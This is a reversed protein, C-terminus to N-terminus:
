VIYTKPVEISCEEENKGRYALIKDYLFIHHELDKKTLRLIVELSAQSLSKTSTRRRIDQDVTQHMSQHSPRYQINNVASESKSFRRSLSQNSSSHQIDQEGEVKKPILYTMEEDEIEM